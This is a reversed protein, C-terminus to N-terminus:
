EWNGAYNNAEELDGVKIGPYRDYKKARAKLNIIEQNDLGNLYVEFPTKAEFVQITVKSATTVSGAGMVFQNTGAYPVYRLSDGAFGKEFLDDGVPVYTTDRIILGLEIAKNETMGANIMSDNLFGEKLVIPLSDEKIFTILTDFSATHVGYKEKFAVQATRIDILRNIVAKDRIEKEEDFRIKKMPSDIVLYGMLIILALLIVQLAQKM